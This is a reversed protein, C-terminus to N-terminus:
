TKEKLLKSLLRQERTGVRDAWLDIVAERTVTEQPNSKLEDIDAGADRLLKRVMVEPIKLGAVIESIKYDM